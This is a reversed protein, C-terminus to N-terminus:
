SLSQAKEGVFKGFYKSIFYIVVLEVLVVLPFMIIVKSYLSFEINMRHLLSGLVILFLTHTGLIILSKNGLFNIFKVSGIKISILLIFIIGSMASLYFLVINGFYNYSMDVQDNFYAAFHSILLSLIIIGFRYQKIYNLINKEHKNFLYGLGYFVTGSIAVDAGWPLRVPMFLYDLYGLVALCFLLGGLKKDTYSFRVVILFIYEVCFLCLLFWLTINFMWGNIGNGYFVGIVKIVQEDFPVIVGINSLIFYLILSIISFFTYPILISKVRKSFIIKARVDKFFMGSLFFFLPMHFSYLYKQLYTDPIYCHSLIVALIGLGKAFDVYDIRKGQNIIM